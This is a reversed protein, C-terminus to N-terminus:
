LCVVLGGFKIGRWVKRSYLIDSVRITQIQTTPKPIRALGGKCYYLAMHVSTHECVCVYVSVSTAILLM